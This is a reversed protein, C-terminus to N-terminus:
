AAPTEEAAQRRGKPAEPQAEASGLEIEALGEQAAVRARATEMIQPYKGGDITEKALRTIDAAPVDKLAIGKKSLAKRVLDKAILMAERLVPDGTRGGGGRRQGFEYESMYDDLQGQVVDQDFAGSEVLEKVTSAFNNRINEAFTQNLASAEGDTLVHGAAYPVFVNFSKGAITYTERATTDNVEPM